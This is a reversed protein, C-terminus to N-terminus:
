RLIDTKVVRNVDDFRQLWAGSNVSSRRKCPVLQLIIFLKQHYDKLKEEKDM